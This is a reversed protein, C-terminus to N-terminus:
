ITHFCLSAAAETKQQKGDKFKKGRYVEVMLEPHKVRRFTQAAVM